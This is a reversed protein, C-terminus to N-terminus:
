RAIQKTFVKGIDGVISSSLKGAMNEASISYALDRKASTLIRGLRNFRLITDLYSLGTLRSLYDNYQTDDSFMRKVAAAPNTFDLLSLSRNVPLSIVPDLDVIELEVRMNLPKRDKTWGLEGEGFTFRMSEVMGIRIFQRGQAFSKVLFPTTYMSGGSSMPAVFPLLLSFPIWIKMIQDYPHAYTCVQHITFTERHLNATSGDWHDAIKVYSNNALALPINGLVTGALAGQFGDVMTNVIGDIIDIGTVGGGTTFKFESTAKVVANFKDKMPSSTHSNSFSDTVADGAEVRFTIADFAGSFSTELLDTVNSVYSRSNPNDSYVLSNAVSSSSNPTTVPTPQQGAENPNTANNRPTTTTESMNGPAQGTALTAATEALFNNGKITNGAGGVGLASNDPNEYAQADLYASATEPFNAENDGRYQSVSNYEQVQHDLSNFGSLTASDFNLNEIIERERRYKDQPTGVGQDDLNALHKLMYRNKRAGKLILRMLDISGDANVTDPFLTSLGAMMDSYNNGAANRGPQNGGVPDTQEQTHTQLVPDIYGLKVMLDNLIGTAVGTYTSFAQKLTYFNNKPSEMLFGLFQSSISLLQMPWFALATWAQGMYFSLKPPRGKNAMVASVPDFMNSVFRLVGTFEMVSPVLTLTSVNDQYMEKWLSGMGGEKSYMIRSYRPDTNPGFQAIPNVYYNDGTASTYVNFVDAWNLDELLDSSRAGSLMRFSKSIIDKDRTSIKAM